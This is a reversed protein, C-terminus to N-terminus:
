KLDSYTANQFACWTTKYETVCIVTSLIFGTFFVHNQVYVGIAMGSSQPTINAASTIKQTILQTAPLTALLTM